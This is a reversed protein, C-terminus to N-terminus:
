IGPAEADKTSRYIIDGEPYYTPMFENTFETGTSVLTDRGKVAGIWYGGLSLYNLNYGKPYSLSPAQLGTLPDPISNYSSRGITGYNSVTMAIKGINHVAITLYPISDNIATKFIATNSFGNGEAFVSSACILLAIAFYRIFM